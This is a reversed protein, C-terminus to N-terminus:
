PKAKGDFWAIIANAGQVVQGDETILTPAVAKGGTLKKLAELHSEYGINNFEVMDTLDKQVLYARVRASDEGGEGIRHFLQTKM